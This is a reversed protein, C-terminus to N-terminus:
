HADRVSGGEPVACCHRSELNCCIQRGSRMESGPNLDPPVVLMIITSSIIRFLTVSALILESGLGHEQWDQCQKYGDLKDIVNHLIFCVQDPTLPQFVPNRSRSSNYLGPM